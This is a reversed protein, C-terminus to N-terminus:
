RRFTQIPLRQRIRAVGGVRPDPVFSLALPRPLGIVVDNRIMVSGIWAYGVCLSEVKLHGLFYAIQDEGHQVDPRRYAALLLGPSM